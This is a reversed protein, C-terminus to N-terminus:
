LIGKLFKEPDIRNAHASWSKYSPHIEWHTHPGTTYGANGSKAIVEGEGVLQPFRFTHMCEYVFRSNARQEKYTWAWPCKEYLQRFYSHAFIHCHGSLAVLITIAGYMDYFYNEFPFPYHDHFFEPADPWVGGDKPRLARYYYVTGSEPARIPSGVPTEFDVAGHDHQRQGPRPDLPRKEGFPASIRYKEDVPRTM